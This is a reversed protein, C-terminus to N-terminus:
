CRWFITRQKPRQPPSKGRPNSNEISVGAIQLTTTSKLCRRHGGEDGEITVWHSAVAIEAGDKRCHALEGEWSGTRLIESLPKPFKTKLLDHSIRGVAEDRTWQYVKQAGATWTLIKGSFDRTFAHALELVAEAERFKFRRNSDM